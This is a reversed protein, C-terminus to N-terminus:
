RQCPEMELLEIPRGERISREAALAVILSARGVRADAFPQRRERICRLFDRRQEQCGIHGIGENDSVMDLELFRFPEGLGGVGLRKDGYACVQRGSSSIAGIELGEPMVNEPRLYLCLILNARAGNEYDITVLAHDVTDIRGIRRPPDPCYNCEVVSGDRWVHQGGTAFVRRPESGIVWNFIDFHHCDKEVISGGTEEQSYFWPRQPFCQRLEKCWMLTVPHGAEAGLEAMKRYFASYRYVLGIQLLRGRERARRTIADADELTTAVPKELLLDCGADLVDEAVQRHLRDPVAVVCAGPRVRELMEHYDLFHPPKGRTWEVGHTELVEPRPDATGAIECEPLRDFGRAHGCGMDGLGIIALRPRNTDTM